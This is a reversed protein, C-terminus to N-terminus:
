KKNDMIMKVILYMILMMFTLFGMSLVYITLEPKEKIVLNLVNESFEWLDM